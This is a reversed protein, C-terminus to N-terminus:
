YHERSDFIIYGELPFFFICEEILAIPKPVTKGDFKEKQFKLWADRAPSGAFIYQINQWFKEIKYRVVLLDYHYYTLTITETDGDQFIEDPNKYFFANPEELVQRLEAADYQRDLVWTRYWTKNVIFSSSTRLTKELYINERKQRWVEIKKTLIQFPLTNKDWGRQQLYQQYFPTLDFHNNSSFQALILALNDASTNVDLPKNGKIVSAGDLMLIENDECLFNDLHCDKQYIGNSHLYATLKTLKELWQSKIMPTAYLWLKNFSQAKTYYEFLIIYISAPETWGTYYIEPTNIGSKRLTQLGNLERKAHHLARHKQLFLKAIAPRGKWQGGLVIRKQPIIRLLETAEFQTQDALPITIPLPIAYDASYLVALLDITM